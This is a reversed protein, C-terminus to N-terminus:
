RLLYIGILICAIGLLKTGTVSVGLMAVSYIFTAVIGIAVSIPLANSSVIFGYYIGIAFLVNALLMLSLLLPTFLSRVSELVSASEGGTIRGITAICVYMVSIIVIFYAWHLM